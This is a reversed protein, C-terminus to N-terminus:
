RSPRPNSDRGPLLNPCDALKLVLNFPSRLTFGLTKENVTPTQLIYNLFARKGAVESSKEFITKARRAVSLVTAITTQYDHDAKTYESLEINLVQLKDAYEQHKKDYIDKTICQDLYAELLRDDKTKIQEYEGRIRNIQAKHFVVEAETNKRLEAVLENQTEETISEFRELVEYVPRLLDKEPIYVRKCIGKGNTCSYYVFERGSKKIKREASISCGCNQCRLLGKFIFDKSLAKNPMKVRNLRIEQCRDFLERTILRPYRHPFSGYKKSMAVGCYFTDNLINDICSKSPKFGKQSVLGMEIMKIRLTELSYNGTAYLEFLKQILHGREPDIIIDKRLRQEADLSVNLYGLRVASTWEGNRRKQEFARKVNDSIADSYYKSLGLKMGFAFKDGASMKNNIVQNDSVFHLEIKDDVAREYLLAVRKDFINRSLRDVKDFCVAVKEKTGNVCAIIKDFEDRKTKYASEDFSFTEIISYGNRECYDQMRTLQAPLSNGAERQEETSVRAVIIAKM